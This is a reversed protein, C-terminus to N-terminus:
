DLGKARREGGPPRPRGARARLMQETTPADSAMAAARSEALRKDFDERIQLITRGNVAIIPPVGEAIVDTPLAAQPSVLADVPIEVANTRRTLRAVTDAFRQRIGPEM